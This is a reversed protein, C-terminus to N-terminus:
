KGYNKILVEKVPGRRSAKSNVLRTAEVERISTAYPAYLDYVLDASSNSLLVKVGRESLDIFVDRLRLQEDLGFGASTYSTFSETVSLPIYPPDFYIFDNAKATHVAEQFDGNVITVDNTNLYTSIRRLNEEDLITPNVYKGYPVNFQNKSNVRYLGNFNVRLMYILRAARQTSSMHELTGTRDAARLTLYHEKSNSAAHHKLETILGEIDDKISQYALILETNSDNIAASAPALELFLAGGGSSPNM